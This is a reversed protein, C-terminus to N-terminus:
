SNQSHILFKTKCKVKFSEFSDNLMSLEIKGNLMTFRNSLLNNGIKYNSTNTFKVMTNRNNFQQNFHLHVWDNSYKSCNYTKHLQLAHKYLTIQNPTARQNLYHLSNYSMLYNYNTTILKLPASSASLLQQRLAPKLSPLLWVESNYYLISYYNSTIIARIQNKNFYKRIIYIAHLAQKSKNISSQVQNQWQLKSDFYIGLVNMHSRSTLLTNFVPIEIPAHDKRHFLCLETKADNVKLGSNRLWITILELSRRMECILSKLCKNWRIIYNDDAFLTMKELDFLPSVFLAYLIPGLISGQVTGVNSCHISSNNDGVNVFFYRNRLWVAILRVLDDPIGIIVLRKILLEINVVDFAASLDMSAMIAFNDDNLASALLSQITLSATATSHKRKFGHQAKGTLDMNNIQEIKQLKHLILKEFIKTVSCLNSIPRYNEIKTKDGKKHIPTVKSILWQEPISNSKYIKEFLLTLPNILVDIGDILIRQPLRDYGECNKTKLSKVAVIIENKSMFFDEEVRIKRKGNYVNPDIQVEEVIKEIKTSFFEAFADPLSEFNVKANEVTMENPIEDANTNKAIKVAKWLSKSNGPIISRQLTKMKEYMFHNKIEINLNKIRDRLINSPNTKLSNLLRKRLNIKRKIQAPPKLSKVTQNNSFPEYPVLNDTITLLKNELDNWIYQPDNSNLEFTIKSLEQLLLTKSYRRWNRKYIIKPPDLECKIECTILMHDGILPKSHNLNNIILPNKVYIHDITSERIENNVVRDWTPFNIMQILNLPEFVSDLSEFYNKFSYDNLNKKRTDLNFDGLIIPNRNPCNTLSRKIVSLQGDFANKQTVGNPPNFSRYINILRYKSVMDVDIIVISSDNAELDFRRTYNIRKNIAFANRAKTGTQEIEITYDKSTLLSHPCTKDVEVEQLACIDIKEQILKEYVYDKKNKLGLCINWTAVKIM